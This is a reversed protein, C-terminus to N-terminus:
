QVLFQFGMYFSQISGNSKQPKQPPFVFVTGLPQWLLCAILIPDLFVVSLKELAFM